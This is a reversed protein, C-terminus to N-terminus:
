SRGLWSQQFVYTSISTCSSQTQPCQITRNIIVSQLSAPLSLLKIFVDFSGMRDKEWGNPYAHIEIQWYLDALSFVDSVFMEKNKADIIKNLLKPNHIFYYNLIIKIIETPYYTNYTRIYGYVILPRKRLIDLSSQYECYEYKNQKKTFSAGM